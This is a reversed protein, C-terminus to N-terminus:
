QNTMKTNNINQKMDDLDVVDKNQNFLNKARAM